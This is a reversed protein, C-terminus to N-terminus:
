ENRLVFLPKEYLGRAQPGHRPSVSAPSPRNPLRDFRKRLPMPKVGALLMGHLGGYWKYIIPTRYVQIPAGLFSPYETFANFANGGVPHQPLFNGRRGTGVARRGVM